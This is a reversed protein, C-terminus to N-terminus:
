LSVLCRCTSYGAPQAQLMVGKRELLTIRGRAPGIGKETAKSAMEAFRRTHGNYGM